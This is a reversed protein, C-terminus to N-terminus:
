GHPNWPSVAIVLFLYSLTDLCLLFCGWCSSNLDDVVSSRGLVYFNTLVSM